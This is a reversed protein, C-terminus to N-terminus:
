EKFEPCLINVTYQLPLPLIEVKAPTLPSLSIKGLGLLFPLDRPKEHRIRSKQSPSVGLPYLKAFKPLSNGPGHNKGIYYLMVHWCIAHSGHALIREPLKHIQILLAAAVLMVSQLNSSAPNEWFCMLRGHILSLSNGM